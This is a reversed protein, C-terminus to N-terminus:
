CYQLFYLEGAKWYEQADMCEKRQVRSPDNRMMRLIVISSSRDPNEGLNLQIPPFLNTEIQLPIDVDVEDLSDEEM